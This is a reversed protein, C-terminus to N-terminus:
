FSREHHLPFPRKRASEGSSGPGQRKETPLLTTRMKPAGKKKETSGEGPSPKNKVRWTNAIIELSHHHTPKNCQGKREGGNGHEVINVGGEKKWEHRKKSTGLRSGEKKNKNQVWDFHRVLWKKRKQWM